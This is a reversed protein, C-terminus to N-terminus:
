RLLHIVYELKKYEYPAVRPDELLLKVVELHGNISSSRIPDNDEDAPNVRPDELLLKVVELHGNRSAWRIAYNNNDSPNVRQDLLAEKIYELSQGLKIMLVFIDTNFIPKEALKLKNETYFYQKDNLKIIKLNTFSQKIDKSLAYYGINEIDRNRIEYDFHKLSELVYEIYKPAVTGNSKGKIQNIYNNKIEITCKPYNYKDRLSYIGEHDKYSSVCHGMNLGEWDKSEQDILRVLRYGKKFTLITEVEGSSKLDKNKKNLETTWKGAKLLAEEYSFNITKKNKYKPSKSLFDIVHDIHLKDKHKEKYLIVANKM